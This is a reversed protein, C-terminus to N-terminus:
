IGGEVDSSMRGYRGSLCSKQMTYDIRMLAYSKLNRRIMEDMQGLKHRMHSHTLGLAREQDRLIKFDRRLRLFEKRSTVLMEDMAHLACIQAMSSQHHHHVMNIPANTNINNAAILYKEGSGMPIKRGSTSTKSM